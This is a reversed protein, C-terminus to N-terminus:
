YLEESKILGKNYYTVDLNMDKAVKEVLDRTELIGLENNVNSKIGFLGGLQQMQSGGIFSFSSNSNQDDQILIQAHVEYLPTAYWFYLVSLIVCLLVSITFLKWHDLIRSILKQLNYSDEPEGAGNKKNEIM